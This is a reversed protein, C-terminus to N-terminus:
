SGMSMTVVHVRRTLAAVMPTGVLVILPNLGNIWEFRAGVEAPYARLVYDPMTLWQHAFLTRVGILVFIFFLFRPNALPHDRWGRSTSIASPGVAAVVPDGATKPFFGLHILLYLATIGACMVFVGTTGWRERVLSSAVAELVIGGNTLAYILSFGLASTREDTSQKVAGYVASQLLGAGFAMTTMGVLVTFMAAPFSPAIIIFVRGVLSASITATMARRVGIRDVFSGFFAAFLTLAGTMYSVMLGTARDDLGVTGGLHLTLINLVGFYAAGDLLYVLNPVWFRADLKRVAGFADVLEALPGKSADGAAENQVSV